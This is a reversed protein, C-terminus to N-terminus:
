PERVDPVGLEAAHEVLWRVCAPLQPHVQQGTAILQRVHDLTHFEGSSVEGDAFRFGEDTFALFLQIFRKHGGSEFVFSHVHRLPVDIGLEERLERRAAEEYSEGAHVHGGASTCYYGPLYSVHAARRQLYIEATRAKIVFVHVIRHNLKRAYVDEKAARGVVVDIDDVIDLYEPM